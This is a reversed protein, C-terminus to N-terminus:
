GLSVDLREVAGDRQFIHASTAADLAHGDIRRTEGGLLHAVVEARGNAQVVVPVQCITYALAGAEIALEQRRGQVDLYSFTSRTTLLEAPDFLELNFM